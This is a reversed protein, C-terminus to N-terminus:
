RGSSCSSGCVARHVFAPTAQRAAEPTGRGLGAAYLCCLAQNFAPIDGVKPHNTFLSVVDGREGLVDEAFGQLAKKPGVEVFVRAGPMTSRACARLSNCPLLSRGRWSIWCRRCSAQGTPYFEGNVNAVIPLRPSELHLRELVRRLPESAPAVISHPFRPQGAAPRRQLWGKPFAEMAQEVAKSAGGIVAQGNSNVNAIVVYGDVTKLIREIEELPAFVAAMRGNDAM